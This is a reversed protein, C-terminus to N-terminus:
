SRSRRAFVSAAFVRLRVGGAGLGFPVAILMALGTVSFTGAILALVGYRVNANSTPYWETSFFFQVLNLGGFLFGVGERLVFFFIGFVFVIASIGCLRILWEFITEALGAFRGRRPGGPSGASASLPRTGMVRAPPLNMAQEDM